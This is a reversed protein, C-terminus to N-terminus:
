LLRSRRCVLSMLLSSRSYHFYSLTTIYPRAGISAFSLIPTLLVCTRRCVMFFIQCTVVTLSVVFTSHGDLNARSVAAFSYTVGLWLTSVLPHVHTFALLGYVPVTLLGCLLALVGRM